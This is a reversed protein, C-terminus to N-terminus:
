FLSPSLCVSISSEASLAAFVSVHTSEAALEETRAVGNVVSHEQGQSEMLEGTARLAGGTERHPEHRSSASAIAFYHTKCM